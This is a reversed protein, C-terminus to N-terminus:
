RFVARGGGTLGFILEGRSTFEYTRAKGLLSSFVMEQSGECYMKTSFIDSFSITGNDAVYKGGMHNCDTTATFSDKDAFTLTFARDKLPKIERGGETASIWTWPNMDLKMRSPDAEGEPNEGVIVVPANEGQKENYIYANLAYFGIIVVAIVALIIVITKKMNM